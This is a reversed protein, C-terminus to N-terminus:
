GPVSVANSAIKPLVSEMRGTSMRVMALSTRSPDLQAPREGVLAELAKWKSSSLPAPPSRVLSLIQIPAKAGLDSPGRRM